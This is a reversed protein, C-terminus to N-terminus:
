LRKKVIAPVGAVMCNPPVDGVVVAGAAVINGSGVNVGPLITVNMGIWCGSGIKVEKFETEGARNDCTGIKHTSDVISLCQGIRVHDGIVIGGCNHSVLVGRFGIWVHNGIKLRGNGHILVTAAIKVDEGIEAGCWRLMKARFSFMRSPTLPAILRYLFLRHSNLM